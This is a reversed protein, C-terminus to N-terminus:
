KAEFELLGQETIVADLRVDWANTSLNEVLQLGHAWGVLVPQELNEALKFAFTRDYFGGGMGIRNGQLDFGVLPMLVLDLDKPEVVLDPQLVSDVEPELIGFKNPQLVSSDTYRVFEMKNGVLIKPMFVQKGAQWLSYILEDTPLEGDASFFVAIKEAKFLFSQKFHELAAAAHSKQELVSLNNRAERLQKRITQQPQNSHNSKIM